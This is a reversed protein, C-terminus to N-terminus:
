NPSGFMVFPAWYYPDPHDRKITKAAMRLAQFKDVGGGGNLWYDYFDQMFSAAVPDNIQWMSTLVSEAGAIRFARTLGLLEGSVARDGLGTDCASLVVLETGKLNMGAAEFATLIGDDTSEASAQHQLTRNAGALLLASNLLSVELGIPDQPSSTNESVFMGHTAIHLIRPHQVHMVASKSAAVGELPPAADLHNKILTKYVGEVEARTNELPPVGQDAAGPVAQGLSEASQSSARVRPGDFDAYGVLVANQSASRLSVARVLDATSFVPRLDIEDHDILYTYGGSTDAVKWALFAATNLVGDPSLYIRRADHVYHGLASWPLLGGVDRPTADSPGAPLPSTGRADPQEDPEASRAHVATRFVLQDGIVAAEKGIQIMTVDHAVGPQMILAGYISEFTPGHGDDLSFVVIEVAADEAPLVKRLRGVSGVDTVQSGALRTSIEREDQDLRRQLEPMASDSQVSRARQAIASREALIRQSITELIPDGTSLLSAQQERLSDTVLNKQWLVTDYALSALEPNHSQYALCFSYFEGLFAAIDASFQHIEDETMSGFRSNYAERYLSLSKKFGVLAGAYDGADFHAMADFGALKATEYVNLSPGPGRMLGQMQAIEAFAEQFNGQLMLQEQEHSMKLLKYRKREDSSVVLSDLQQYVFSLRNEDGIADYLPALLELAAIKESRFEPEAHNRLLKEEEMLLRLAGRKDGINSDAQASNRLYLSLEQDSSKVQREITLAENMYAASEYTRGDQSAILSLWWQATRLAYCYDNAKVVAQICIEATGVIVQRFQREAEVRRESQLLDVGLKNRVFLMGPDDPSLLGSVAKITEEGITVADEFQGKLTLDAMQQLNRQILAPADIGVSNSVPQAVAIRVWFSASVLLMGFIYSRLTLSLM